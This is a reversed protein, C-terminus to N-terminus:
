SPSGNTPPAAPTLPVGDPDDPHLYCMPWSGSADRSRRMTCRATARPCHFVSRVEPEDSWLKAAGIGGKRREGLALAPDHGLQRIADLASGGQRLEGVIREFEDLAGDEAFDTRVNVYHDCLWALVRKELARDTM